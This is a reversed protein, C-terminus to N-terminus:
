TTRSRTSAYSRILGQIEPSIEKHCVFIVDLNHNELKKLAIVLADLIWAMPNGFVGGGLATLFVRNSGGKFNYREANLLAVLLTAEYSAELVMKGMQVWDEVSTGYNYSIPCGSGFVQTVLQNKDKVEVTGWSHSTVQVDSHVGIRLNAIALDRKEDNQGMATNFSKLRRSDSVAYGGFM